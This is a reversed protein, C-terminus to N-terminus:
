NRDPDARYDPRHAHDPVVTRGLRGRIGDVLGRGVAALKRLRHDHERIVSRAALRATSRTAKWLQLYRDRTSRPVATNGRFIELRAHTSNRTRYYYKWAPMAADDRTMNINVVATDVRVHAFGADRMRSFYEIDEVWYFLEEAPVGCQEVASRPIMAGWWGLGSTRADTRDDVVAPFFLSPADATAIADSLGGLAGPTPRCDDDMVWVWEFDEELFARLGAAYGGAPGVNEPLRLIRVPPDGDAVTVPPRSANDVVLIAAVATSQARLAALCRAVGEPSEYTLVLALVSPAQESNM